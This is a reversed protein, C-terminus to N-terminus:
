TPTEIAFDLIDKLKRLDQMSTESFGQINVKDKLDNLFAIM